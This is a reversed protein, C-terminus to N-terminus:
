GNTAAMPGLLDLALSTHNLSHSLRKYQRRTAGERISASAFSSSSYGSSSKDFKAAQYPCMVRVIGCLRGCQFSEIWLAALPTQSQRTTPRGSIESRATYSESVVIQRSSGSLKKASRSICGQNNSYIVANVILTLLHKQDRVVSFQYVQESRFVTYHKGSGLETRRPNCLVVRVCESGRFQNRSAPITASRIASITM